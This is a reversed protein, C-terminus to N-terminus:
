ASFWMEGGEEVINVGSTLDDVLRTLEEQRGPACAVSLVVDQLYEVGLIPFNREELERRVQKANSFPVTVSTRVVRTFERIGAEQIAGAAAQGYARTLGPAGLLIGGFYRTVTCICNTLGARKVAELVPLGGTGQPEGDDSYRQYNTEGQILYAYVIHRADPYTKRIGDLFGRAEDETSVPCINAIFKSKKEVLTYEGPGACTLYADM